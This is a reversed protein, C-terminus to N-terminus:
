EDVEQGYFTIEGIHAFGTLGWTENIVFRIYRVEPDDLSFAYEDGKELHEQDEAATGGLLTPRIAVCGNNYPPKAVRLPIWADLSGNQAPADKSGWIDLLRPNGHSYPFGQRQLINVRSLRATVGLDVTLYQPWGTGAWTHNFNTKIDDFAYEYRGEWAAWDHDNDLTVRNFKSKDLKQEFMPTIEIKATDSYNDWRDRLLVAFKRKVPEFGRVNYEGDSVGSYIIDLVNLEGTSDEAMFIFGLSANNENQWRFRVGGFDPVMEITNKVLQVDPLEPNVKVVVPTSVNESRDVAYLTVLKESTDAFGEVTIYHLFASSKAEVKKGEALTYEAKVYLFDEDTPLNYKIMAAGPLNVVQPNSIPGPAVSDEFLPKHVDEKCAGLLAIVGIIISLKFYKKM